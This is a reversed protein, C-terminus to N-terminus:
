PPQVVSWVLQVGLAEVYRMLTNITPNAQKGTELRSVAAHDTDM